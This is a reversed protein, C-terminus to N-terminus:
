SILATTSSASSARLPLFKIVVVIYFYFSLVESKSDKQYFSLYKFKTPYKNEVVDAATNIIHTIGIKELNELNYAAYEGGM